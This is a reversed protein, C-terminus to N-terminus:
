QFYKECIYCISYDCSFDNWEGDKFGTFYFSGLYFTGRVIQGCNQNENGNPQNNRWATYNALLSGDTWKWKGEEMQDSLGIWFAGEKGNLPTNTLFDNELASEIKVLHARLSRCKAEANNSTEPATFLKYCSGCLSCEGPIFGSPLYHFAHKRLSINVSQSLLCSM